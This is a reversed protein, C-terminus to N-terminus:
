ILRLRRIDRFDDPNLTWVAADRTIATAAIALDIERGRAHSVQRYLEAAVSAEDAGFPFAQERPFLKEQVTLEQPLRPGRLWEYLVVTSLHIRQGSEVLQTLRPLSRRPGCLADILASTDVLIL